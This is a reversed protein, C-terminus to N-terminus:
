FNILLFFTLLFLFFFSNALFLLSLSPPPLTVQKLRFYFFVLVFFSPLASFLFFFFSFHLSLKPTFPSDTCPCSQKLIYYYYLQYTSSMPTPGQRLYPCIPIQGKTQRPGLVNMSGPLSWLAIALSHKTSIWSAENREKEQRLFSVESTQIRFLFIKNHM